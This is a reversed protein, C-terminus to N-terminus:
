RLLKYSQLNRKIFVLNESDFCDRLIIQWCCCGLMSVMSVTISLASLSLVGFNIIWLPRTNFTRSMMYGNTSMVLMPLWVLLGVFLAGSYQSQKEVIQMFRAYAAIICEMILLLTTVNRFGGGDFHQETLAFLNLLVIMAIASVLYVCVFIM